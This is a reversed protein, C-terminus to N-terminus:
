MIEMLIEIDLSSIPADWCKCLTNDGPSLIDEYVSDDEEIVFKVDCDFEENKVSLRFMHFLIMNSLRVNTDDKIFAYHDEAIFDSVPEGDKCYTITKM